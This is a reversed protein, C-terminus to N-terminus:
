SRVKIKGPLLKSVFRHYLPLNSKRTINLKLESISGKEDYYKVKMSPASFAKSGKSIEIEFVDRLPIGAISSRNIIAESEGSFRSKKHYLVIHDIFNLLADLREIKSQQVIKLYHPKLYFSRIIEMVRDNNASRSLMVYSNTDKIVGAVYYDDRELMTISLIEDGGEIVMNVLSEGKHENISSYSKPLKSFVELAEELSKSELRIATPSGNYDFNESVGRLEINLKVDQGNKLSTLLDQDEFEVLKSNCYPCEENEVDFVIKCSACYRM